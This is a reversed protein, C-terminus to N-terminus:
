REGDLCDGIEEEEGDGGLERVLLSKKGIARAIREENKM